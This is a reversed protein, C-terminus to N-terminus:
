VLRRDTAWRTPVNHRLAASIANFETADEGCSARATALTGSHRCATLHAAPHRHHARQSVPERDIDAAYARRRHDCSDAQRRRAM